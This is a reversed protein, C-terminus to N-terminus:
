LSIWSVVSYRVGSTVRSVSHNYVYFSPFILMENENPKYTLNFRPFIIEGGTYGDNLYYVTSIRRNIKGTNDVHDTFKQGPGYKLIRYQEHNNFSLDFEKRYHNEPGNFSHLFITSIDLEFSSLNEAGVDGPSSIYPIEIEETDRINKYIGDFDGEVSSPAWSVLKRNEADKLQSLLDVSTNVVNKYLFIGPALSVAEVTM